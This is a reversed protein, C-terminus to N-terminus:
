QRSRRATGACIIPSGPPSSDAIAWRSGTTSTPALGSVVAFQRAFPYRQRTWGEPHPSCRIQEAIAQQIARELQPSLGPMAVVPGGERAIERRLGPSMEVLTLRVRSISGAWDTQWQARVRVHEGKPLLTAPVVVENVPPCAPLALAAPHLAFASLGIILPRIM